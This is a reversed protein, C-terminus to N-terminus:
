FPIKLPVLWEEQTSPVSGPGKALSDLAKEEEKREGCKGHSKRGWRGLNVQYAWLNTKKNVSDEQRVLAASWGQLPKFIFHGRCVWTNSCKTGSLSAAQSRQLVCMVVPLNQPKATWSWKTGQGRAKRHPPTLCCREPEQSGPQSWVEAVM